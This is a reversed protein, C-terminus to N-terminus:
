SGGGASLREQGRLQTRCEVETIGSHGLSVDAPLEASLWPAKNNSAGRCVEQPGPLHSVGRFGWLM